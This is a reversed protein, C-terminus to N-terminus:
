QSALELIDAESLIRNYIRVDDIMGDFFRSSEQYAGINAPGIFYEKSSGVVTNDLVGDIYIKSEGAADLTGAVHYWRDPQLLTNAEIDTGNKTDIKFITTDHLIHVHIAGDVWSDNSLPMRPDPSPIDRAYVWMALSFTGTIIPMDGGIDVYNTSGDFDLAGGVKGSVWNVSGGVTGPHANGISDEATNGAGDDFKWQAILGIDSTNTPTISRHSSADLRIDDFYLTGVAANGDIGIALSTVNQLNVGVTTLDIGWLQWGEVALNAPDGDYLVKVGNIKVYLQGTNGQTGRFNFALAQIGYKTWDQATDFTLTAESFSAGATNSYFLPMSQKGGNVITTETYSPQPPDNGVLAGNTTVGFGDLWSEFIRHNRPDPPDIDNYSEFDDVVLYELTSFSWVDGQWTPTPEAENVEDVRWYYTGALDLASSYSVDTGSVVPATGDIVAQEDTSLYVDHMAAERGARWTLTVDPDVDVAESEPSPESASVPISLFRVESLGFQNIFGGWNSNATIKVYKAAAGGFDVTTITADGELATAQAFEHTTGLTAWSSGDASYEIVAEKIGFGVALELGTNHNWVFMQYLKHVKEFEYQIWAGNDERGSLWMDAEDTSHQDSGDLGSGNVTNEPGKGADISSATAMVNEVPYGILETEFSWVEGQFVTSAPPATVQDVRWYYTTELDLRQTPAYSAESLTIGGVGDTVDSLNKSLYIIHSNVASVSAGPTWSLVVDRPVDTAANAPKPAGAVEPDSKMIGQIEAESLIHNYIRVDDIMGDFFRDSEQYAGINAPGIIYERGDGSASNDLVGDIYIRSEGAADLTGAVHYWQDARLATNSSIDTGNKTDIRFVATEPWIHVHIARDAWTDNSLPMRLDGEATPIDRAYVWMTLSFTGSVIPMDGGIDVYNTSGDFDLAGGVQGTVWNATGGITGPHANGISDTATNGAGDDFEWHAVLEASVSNMLTLVFVCPLLYLLRKIM